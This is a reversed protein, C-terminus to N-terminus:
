FRQQVGLGYSTGGDIRLVAAYAMTRKSLTYRGELLANTYKRGASNKLDRGLDLTATFAGSRVQAGLTFGRRQGFSGDGHELTRANVFSAAVAWPGVDYKGGLAYNARQGSLKNVDLAVGIPGQAYIVNIDWKGRQDPTGSRDHHDAKLVHAIQASWGNFSPTKYSIQSSNRYDTGADLFMNEVVNYNALGTLDWTWLASDAPSYGRGLRLTGWGGGMWLDAQRGWFGGGNGSTLTAGDHLSLGTEFTFGAKLGGGLDETGRVGLRSVLNNMTSGSLLHTRTDGDVRAKGIGADAIGYLTVSSQALAAGCFGCAALMLLTKNM